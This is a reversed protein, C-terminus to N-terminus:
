RGRVTAPLRFRDGGIEVEIRNDGLITVNTREAGDAAAVGRGDRTVRLRRFGGDANRVTLVRGRPSDAGTVSCVREFFSAGAVRCEIRNDPAGPPPAAAGNTPQAVPETPGCAATLLTLLALIRMRAM